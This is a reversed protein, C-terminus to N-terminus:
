VRKISDSVPANIRAKRLGGAFGPLELTEKEFGQEFELGELWKRHKGTWYGVSEYRFGHQLLFKQIWQKTLLDDVM